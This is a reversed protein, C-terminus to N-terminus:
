SPRTKTKFQFLEKTIISSINILFLFIALALSHTPFAFSLIMSFFSPLVLSYACRNFLAFNTMTDISRNSFLLSYVKVVSIGVTILTVAYLLAYILASMILSVDTKFAFLMNGFIISLSVVSSIIMMMLIGISENNKLQDLIKKIKSTM